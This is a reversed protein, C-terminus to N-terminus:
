QTINNLRNHTKTRNHKKAVQHHHLFQTCKNDIQQLMIFLAQM